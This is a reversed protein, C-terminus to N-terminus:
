RGARAGDVRGRRGACRRWVVLCHGPGERWRRRRGGSLSQFAPLAARSADTEPVSTPVRVAPVTRGDGLSRATPPLTLDIM